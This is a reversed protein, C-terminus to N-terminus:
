QPAPVLELHELLPGCMQHLSAFPLEMESEVGVARVVRIDAAAGILHDLLPMKSDDLGDDSM